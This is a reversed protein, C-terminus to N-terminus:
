YRDPHEDYEILEGDDGLWITDPPYADDPPAHEFDYALERDRKLKYQRLRERQIEEAIATELTAQYNVWLLHCAWLGVWLLFFVHANWLGIIPIGIVFIVTHLFFRYRRQVRVTVRQIIAEYNIDDDPM